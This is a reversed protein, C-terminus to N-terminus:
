RVTYGRGELCATTARQFVTADALASPQSTAWRNCAQRDAETQAASQGNRPYVVPDPAAPQAPRALPQPSVVVPPDAYVPPVVVYGRPDGYYVSAAGLGIGLGVGGWFYGPGWGRYHHHHGGHGGYGRASAPSAALALTSTAVAFALVRLATKM